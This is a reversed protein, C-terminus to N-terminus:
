KINIKKLNENARVVMMVAMAFIACCVLGGFVSNMIRELMIDGDNFSAFMATQLSFMAVLAHSLNIIKVASLLPSKYKRFKILQVVADILFYFAYMAAAYIFLGPYEAGMGFHIMQYVVGTLAANMVFLLVGCFRYTQYERELNGKNKRVNRLLIFRVVSLIIYFVAEAGFWFSSYRVGNILRFVAYIINVSLSAYLSIKIRLSVDTVIRNGYKNNYVTSKAGSILRNNNIFEKVDSKMKPFSVILSILAYASAMYSIYGFVSYHQESALVIIVAAGSVLCLLITWVAGPRLLRLLREVFNNMRM